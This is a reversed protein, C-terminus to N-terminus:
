DYPDKLWFVTDQANVKVTRGIVACSSKFGSFAGGSSRRGGDAEAIKKGDKYLTLHIETYKSHGTLVNRASVIQKFEVDLNYGAANTDLSNVINVQVGNDAGLKKLHKPYQVILQCENLVRQDIMGGSAVKVRKLVNVKIASEDVSSATSDVSKVTKNAGCAGLVIAFGIVVSLKMFKMFKM